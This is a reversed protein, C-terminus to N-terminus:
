ASPPKHGWLSAQSYSKVEWKADDIVVGGWGIEIAFGSPTQAYFSIMRDNPHQGIGSYITIGAAVFRDFALGVDSLDSAELMLHSLRKPYNPLAAVAISHHRGSAVHYFSAELEAGEVLETKATIYDSISFGLVDKYFANTQEPHTAVSVIHGVGLRGALFGGSVLRSSFPADSPAIKAGFHFEHAWHDPDKCFYLKRVNRRSCLDADAATVDVGRERLGAVYSELAPETPFEWGAAVIDDAPGQQLIVRSEHSDIRLLVSPDAIARGLQLGIVETAFSKWRGLDSVEFVCYGLCSPQTMTQPVTSKNHISM